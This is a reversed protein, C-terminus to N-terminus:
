SLEDLDLVSSDLALECSLFDLIKYGVDYNDNSLTFPVRTENVFESALFMELDEAQDFNIYM